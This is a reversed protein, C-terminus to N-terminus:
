LMLRQPKKGNTGKGEKGGEGEETKGGQTLVKM